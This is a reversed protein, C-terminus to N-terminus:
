GASIAVKKEEKIAKETKPLSINLVGNKYTASINEKNVECPLPLKRYFSGYSREMRYYGKKSEEKEEHKEGKITLQSDTVSVEIDKMDVGPLEATVVVEKEADQMNVKPHFDALPELLKFSPTRGFTFGSSFDDFMRNMEHRLKNFASTDDAMPVRAAEQKKDEKIAVASKM